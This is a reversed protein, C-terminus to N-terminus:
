AAARGRVRLDFLGFVEERSLGTSELSSRPDHDEVLQAFLERKRELIAAIREEITGPTTMRFIFVPEKQGIRHVRNIAQDEVAPNWWRDFLFAYNAFQLNLGVAGTGYSLLLVPRDPDDRFRALVQERQRAPVGGHYLLPRFDTLSKELRALTEVWQSFVIAKRGSAAIEELDCRLTQTKASEGTAPDFNCIQKLRRILEFVHEITIHDGLDNLRVVGDREALVYSEHQAPTLDVHVDRVMKEPLDSLVMEKTRRLLIGLAADRLLDPRDECAPRERLVFELISALDGPRNEVPTGTLAWSRKRRLAHIVRATKSGRNKIRQAEDLVVLDFSAEREGLLEQDRSLSEYNALKVPSADHLWLNRRAWGDGAIVTVPIEEAWLSFERLWNPVLPKPCVLLATRIAGARLLLRLAMITQMTKGLGMEDALLASWRSALFHIGDFQYPFPDFPLWIRSDGLLVSVPPQLVAHVRDKLPVSPPPPPLPITRVPRGPDRGKKPTSPRTEAPSVPFRLSEVRARGLTPRTREVRPGEHMAERLVLAAPLAPALSTVAPAPLREVPVSRVDVNPTSTLASLAAGWHDFFEDPM